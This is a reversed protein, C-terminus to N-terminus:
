RPLRQRIMNLAHRAAEGSETDSEAAAELEDLMHLVRRLTVPVASHRGDRMADVAQELSM